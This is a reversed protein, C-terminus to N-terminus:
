IYTHTHRACFSVSDSQNIADAPIHTTSLHGWYMLLARYSEYIVEHHSSHRKKIRKRFTALRTQHFVLLLQSVDLARQENELRLYTSNHSLGCDCM